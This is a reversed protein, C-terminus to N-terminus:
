QHGCSSTARLAIRKHTHRCVVCARAGAQWLEARSAAKATSDTEGRPVPLSGPGPDRRALTWAQQLLCGHEELPMQRGWLFGTILSTFPIPPLLPLFYILKLVM